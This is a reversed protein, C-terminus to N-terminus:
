LFIIVLTIGACVGFVKYRRMSDAKDNYRENLVSQTKQMVWEIGNLQGQLDFRGLQKGLERFIMTIKEPLHTNNCIVVDMCCEVDPSIQKDLEISLECFTDRITGSVELAAQRCLIPLPTVRYQLECKMFNLVDIIQLLMKEEQAYKFALYFGIGVCVILVCAAGVIRLLM